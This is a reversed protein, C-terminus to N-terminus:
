PICLPLPQFRRSLTPKKEPYRFYELISLTSQMVTFNFILSIYIKSSQMKYYAFSIEIFNNFYLTTLVVDVMDTKVITKRHM